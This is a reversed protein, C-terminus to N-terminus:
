GFLLYLSLLVSVLGLVASGLLAGAVALATTAGKKGGKRRPPPATSSDQGPGGLADLVAGLGQDQPKKIKKAASPIPAHEHLESLAELPDSKLSAHQSIEPKFNKTLMGTPIASTVDFPLESLPAPTATDTETPVQIVAVAAWERLLMAANKPLCASLRKDFSAPSPRRAPNFDLSADLVDLVRSRGRAALYTLRELRETLYDNHDAANDVAPGLPGGALLAYLIAGFAYIDAAEGPRAEPSATGQILAAAEATGRAVQIVEVRGDATVAFSALSLPPETRTNRGRSHQEALRVIQLGVDIPVARIRELPLSAVAM